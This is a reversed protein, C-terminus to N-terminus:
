WLALCIFYFLILPHPTGSAVLIQRVLFAEESGALGALAKELIGGILSDLEGAHPRLHKPLQGKQAAALL